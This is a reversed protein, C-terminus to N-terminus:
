TERRVRLLLWGLGGGLATLILTPGVHAVIGHVAAAHPCRLAAMVISWAGATMGLAAGTVAPHVPDTGRRPVLLFLLPISGQLVSTAGCALHVGTGVHERGPGPWAMTASLVAALLAAAALAVALLLVLRPRGLMSGRAGSSVRTLVAAACVGFTATFAIMEAPRTGARMGGTVMFLAATAVVGAVAIRLNRREHVARTAAPTRAVEALVRARLDAAAENATRRDHAEHSM